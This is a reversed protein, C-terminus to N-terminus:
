NATTQQGFAYWLQFGRASAGLPLGAEVYAKQEESLAGEGISEQSELWRQFFEHPSSPEADEPLDTDGSSAFPGEEMGEERSEDGFPDRGAEEDREDDRREDGPRDPGIDDPLWFDFGEGFPGSSENDNEDSGDDGSADDDSLHDFLDM